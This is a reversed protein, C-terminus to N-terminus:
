FSSFYSSFFKKELNLRLRRWKEAGAGCCNDQLGPISAASNLQHCKSMVTPHTKAVPSTQCATRAWPASAPSGSAWPARWPWASIWGWHVHLLYHSSDDKVKNTLLTLHTMSIAMPFIAMIWSYFQALFFGSQMINSKLAFKYSHFISLAFAHEHRTCFM